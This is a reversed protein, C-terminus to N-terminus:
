SHGERILHGRPKDFCDDSASILRKHIGAPHPIAGVLGQHELPRAVDIESSHVAEVENGAFAGDLGPDAGIPLGARPIIRRNDGVAVASSDVPAEM